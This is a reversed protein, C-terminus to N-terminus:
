ITILLINPEEGKYKLEQTIRAHERNNNIAKPLYYTIVGLPLTICSEPNM